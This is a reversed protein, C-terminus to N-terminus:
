RTCNGLSIGDFSTEARPRVPPHVLHSKSMDWGRGLSLWRRPVMPIVFHYETSPPEHLDPASDVSMQRAVLSVGVERGDGSLQTKGM